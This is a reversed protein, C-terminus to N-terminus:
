ECVVTFDIEAMETEGFVVTTREDTDEGAVGGNASCNEAIGGLVVDVSGVRVTNFEAAGNAGINVAEADNITLTYGDDPNTGTTTVNVTLNGVNPVCDITFPAQVTAGLTVEVATSTPEAVTCNAPINALSTSDFLVTHPGALFHLLEEPSSPNVAFDNTDAATEDVVTLTVEPAIDEAAGTLTFAPTIGGTVATCTVDFAVEARDGVSVSVTAPNNTATCNAPVGSLVVTRSGEPAGYLVAEGDLDIEVPGGGELAVEYGEGFDPAYGTTTTTVGVEGFRSGSTPDLPDDDCAALAVLGMTLATVGFRRYGALSMSQM